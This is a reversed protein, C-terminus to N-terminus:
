NIFMVGTYKILNSLRNNQSLLTFRTRLMESHNRLGLKLKLNNLIEM